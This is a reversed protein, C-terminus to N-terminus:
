HSFMSLLKYKSHSLQHLYPWISCTTYFPEDVIIAKYVQMGYVINATTLTVIDIGWMSIIKCVFNIDQVLSMKSLGMCLQVKDHSM